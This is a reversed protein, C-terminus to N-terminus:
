RKEREERVWSVTSEISEVPRRSAIRRRLEEPSPCEAARELERLLYDSLSLGEAAARVKLLRHLRDPMNRIQVMKAM